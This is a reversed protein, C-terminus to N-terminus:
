RTALRNLTALVHALASSGDITAEEVQWSISPDNMAATTLGGNGDVMAGPLVAGISNESPRLFPVIHSYRGLGWAFSSGFPNKGMVWDVESLGFDLANQDGLVRAMEILGQAHLVLANSSGFWSVVLSQVIGFGASRGASWHNYWDAAHSKIIAQMGPSAIPYYRLLFVVAQSSEDQDWSLEGPFSGSQKRWIGGTFGGAQIM